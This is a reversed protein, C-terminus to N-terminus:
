VIVTRPIPVRERSARRTCVISYGCTGRVLRTYRTIGSSPETNLWVGQPSNPIFRLFPMSLLSVSFSNAEASSVMSSVMASVMVSVMVSEMSSDTAVASFAPVSLGAVEARLEDPLLSLLDNM